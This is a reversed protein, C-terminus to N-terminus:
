KKRQRQTPKSKPLNYRPSELLDIRPTPDSKRGNRGSNVSLFNYIFNFEMNVM